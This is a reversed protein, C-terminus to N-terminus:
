RRELYGQLLVAAAVRDRAERRTARDADAELLTQEAISTTYREDVMLVEVDVEQALRSAFRRASTAAPGEEGSLSLPLGVVVLEVEQEDIM